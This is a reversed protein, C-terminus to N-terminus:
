EAAEASYASWSLEIFKQNRVWAVVSLDSFSVEPMALIDQVKPKKEVKVTVVASELKPVIVTLAYREIKDTKKGDEYAFKEEIQVLKAGTFFESFDIEGLIKNINVAKM